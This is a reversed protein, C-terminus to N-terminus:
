NSKKLFKPLFVISYIIALIFFIICHALPTIKENWVEIIQKAAKQAFAFYFGVFTIMWTRDLNYFYVILGIILCANLAPLLENKWSKNKYEM